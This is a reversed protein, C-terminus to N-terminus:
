GPCPATSSPDCEQGSPDPSTVPGPFTLDPLFPTDAWTMAPLFLALLAITLFRTM